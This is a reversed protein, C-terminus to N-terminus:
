PQIPGIKISNMAFSIKKMTTDSNMGSILKIV